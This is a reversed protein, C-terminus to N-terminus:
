QRFSLAASPVPCHTPPQGSSDGSSGCAHRSGGDPCCTQWPPLHPKRTSTVPLPCPRHSGQFPSGRPLSDTGLTQVQARPPCPGQGPPCVAKGPAILPRPHSPSIQLSLQHKNKHSCCIVAFMQERCPSPVLRFCGEQAKTLMTIAAQGGSVGPLSQMLGKARLPAVWSM